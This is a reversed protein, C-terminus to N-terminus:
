LSGCKVTRGKLEELTVIRSRDRHLMSHCNSCVPVIDSEPDVKRQRESISELHHIEIFDRALDGGYVENFSFGCVKCRTGHLEIAKTRNKRSREYVVHRRIKERGEEDPEFEEDLLGHTRAETAISGEAIATNRLFRFVFKSPSDDNIIHETLEVQGYFVFSSHHRERYFMYVKEGKAKANVIRQDKAHNTEGEVYVLDGEIRNAYDPLVDQNDKTIFLIITNSNLPTVIGRSIAHFTKYGLFRALFPRDYFEGVKLSEFM